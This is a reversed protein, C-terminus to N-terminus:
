NNDKLQSYLKMTDNYKKTRKHSKMKKSENNYSRNSRIIENNIKKLDKYKTRCFNYGVGKDYVQATIKKKEARLRTLELRTSNMDSELDRLIKSNTAIQQDCIYKAVEDASDQNSNGYINKLGIISLRSALRRPSKKNLLNKFANTLPCKQRFRSKAELSKADSSIRANMSLQIITDYHSSNYLELHNNNVKAEQLFIINFNIDLPFVVPVENQSFDKKFWRDVYESQITVQDKMGNARHTDIVRNMFPIFKTQKSLHISEVTIYYITNTDFNLGKKMMDFLQKITSFRYFLIYNNLLHSGDNRIDISKHSLRYINDKKIVTKFMYGDITLEDEQHYITLNYDDLEKTLSLNEVEHNYRLAINDTNDNEISSMASNSQNM